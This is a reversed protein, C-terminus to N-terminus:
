SFLEELIARHVDEVPKSASVVLFRPDRRSLKLYRDRVDRLFKVGELEIRDLKSLRSLGIEPEIDLLIIRDPSVGDEAIKCLEKLLKAPLRRGGGQYALTSETFRDAVVIKGSMTAPKIVDEVLQNRASLFLFLEAMATMDTSKLIKRIREGLLTTGPDRVLIAKSGQKRLEKVLMKAQTTKGAGEIGEFSIFRFNFRFNM